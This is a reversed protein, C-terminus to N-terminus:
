SIFTNRLITFRFALFSTESNLCNAKLSKYIHELLNIFIYSCLKTTRARLAFIVAM